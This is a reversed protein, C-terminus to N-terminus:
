NKYYKKRDKRGETNHSKYTETLSHCNPCLVQLNSETNNLYNGDRHHIELPITNTYPNKEGWGCVECKYNHKDLLYSRIHKSLQYEGKLGDELGDKWRKIYEDRQHLQQCKTSCYKTQNSTLINGCYICYRVNKSSRIRNREQIPKINGNFNPNRKQLKESIKQKTEESVSRNKNNYIAACSKCCFMVSKRKDTIDKGCNKCFRKEKKNKEALWQEWDIGEAFLLKKVKERNTYNAKGFEQRCIDNLCKCNELNM